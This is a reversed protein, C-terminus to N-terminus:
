NGDVHEHSPGLDCLRRGDHTVLCVSEVSPPRQTEYVVFEDGERPLPHRRVYNSALTWTDGEHVYVRHM